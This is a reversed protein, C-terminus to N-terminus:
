RAGSRDRASSGFVGEGSYHHVYAGFMGEPAYVDSGSWSFAADEPNVAGFGVYLLPEEVSDINRYLRFLTDSAEDFAIGVKRVYDDEVELETGVLCAQADPKATLTVQWIYDCSPCLESDDGTTEAGAVLWQGSCNEVGAPLESQDWEINLFEVGALSSFDIDLGADDDDSVGSDMGLDINLAGPCGVLGCMLLGLVLLRLTRSFAGAGSLRDKQIAPSRAMIEIRIRRPRVLPLRGVLGRGCRTSGAQMRGLTVPGQLWATAQM